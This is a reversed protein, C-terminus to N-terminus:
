NRNGKSMFKKNRRWNSASRSSSSTKPSMLMVKSLLSNGEQSGAAPSVSTPGCLQSDQFDLFDMIINFVIVSLQGPSISGCGCILAATDFEAKIQVSWQAHVHALTSNINRLPSVICFFYRWVGAVCFYRCTTKISWLPRSVHTRVSLHTRVTQARLCSRSM